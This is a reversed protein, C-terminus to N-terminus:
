GRALLMAGAIFALALWGLNVRPAGVNFAALLACVLAFVLLIIPLIAM